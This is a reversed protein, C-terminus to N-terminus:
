LRVMTVCEARDLPLTVLGEHAILLLELRHCPLFELEEALVEIVAQVGHVTPQVGEMCHEGWERMM